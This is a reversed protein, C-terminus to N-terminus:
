PFKVLDALAQGLDNYIRVESLGATQLKPASELGLGTRVLVVQGVGAAYGAQIDSLNDGILISQKLDINFDQAADLIMGPKPKRCNCGNEPKHPCVYIGDVRGNASRIVLTLQENIEDVEARSFIGHGIGAQNTIILIKYPSENLRALASLAGPIFEVDAWSRVYKSRNEIIVGDRDLFIAMNM